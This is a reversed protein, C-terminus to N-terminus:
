LLVPRLVLPLFFFFSSFYRFSFFHLFRSIPFCFFFFRGLSFFDSGASVRIATSIRISIPLPRFISTFPLRLMLLDQHEMQIQIQIQRQRQTCTRSYMYTDTCRYTGTYINRYNGASSYFRILMFVCAMLIRIHTDQTCLGIRHQIWLIYEICMDLRAPNPNAAGRVCIWYHCLYCVRM